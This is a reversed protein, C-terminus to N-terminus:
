TKKKKKVPPLKGQSEEEEILRDQEMIAAKQEETFPDTPIITESSGGCGVHVTVLTMALLFKRPVSNHVAKLMNIPERDLPTLSIPARVPSLGARALTNCSTIQM